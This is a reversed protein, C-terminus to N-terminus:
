GGLAARTWELAATPPQPLYGKQFAVAIVLWALAMAIMALGWTFAQERVEKADQPADKRMFATGAPRSARGSELFWRALAQITARQQCTRKVADSARQGDRARRPCVIRRVALFTEGGFIFFLAEKSGPVEVDRPSQLRVLCGCVM